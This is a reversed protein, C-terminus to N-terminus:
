WDMYDLMNPAYAFQLQAKLATAIANLAEIYTVVKQGNSSFVMISPLSELPIKTYEVHKMSIEYVGSSGLNTIIVTVNNIDYKIELPMEEPGISYLVPSGYGGKRYAVICEYDKNGITVIYHDGVTPYKGKGTDQDYVSETYTDTNTFDVSVPGWFLTQGKEIGPKNALEEFNIKYEDGNVEFANIYDPM